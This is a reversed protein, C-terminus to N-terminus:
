IQYLSGQMYLPLKYTQVKNKEALEYISCDPEQPASM